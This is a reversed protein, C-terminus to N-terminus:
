LNWGNQALWLSFWDSGFKSLNIPVRFPVRFHPGSFFISEVKFQMAALMTYLSWHCLICEKTEKKGFWWINFYFREILDALKNFNLTNFFLSIKFHKNIESSNHRSCPWYLNQGWWKKFNDWINPVFNM